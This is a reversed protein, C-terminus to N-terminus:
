CPISYVMQRRAADPDAYGQPIQREEGLVTLVLRDGISRTIGDIDQIAGRETVAMCYERWVPFAHFTGVAMWPVQIFKCYFSAAAPHSMLCYDPAFRYPRVREKRVNEWFEIMAQSMPAQFSKFGLSAGGGMRTLMAVPQIPFVDTRPAIFVLSRRLVLGGYFRLISLVSRMRKIPSTSQEAMIRITGCREIVDRLFYSDGLATKLAVRGTYLFEIPGTYGESRLQMSLVAATDSAARAASLVFVVRKPSRELIPEPAEPTPAEPTSLIVKSPRDSM